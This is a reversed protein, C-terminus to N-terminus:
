VVLVQELDLVYPPLWAPINSLPLVSEDLEIGIADRMFARRREMRGWCQPYQEKIRSRLKDDALVVGDEANIYFFPGCSVPIIDMQLAMGSRLKVSSEPSFPSHVWEDLHLYHGPNVAFDFLNKDRKSEVAAFVDGSIAGVRTSTYWTTVVDFYNRVLADYFDRESAPLDEPGSAVCGARCTLAGLVGFATVYADGIRASNDSASSLGRKVKAGFSVMRHCSLPLGEADLFRELRKEEVGERINRILALVGQSTRASAYEFFAIQSPENVVRLGDEVDIFIDNANLVHEEGGTITRLLDVIYAPIEIPHRGAGVMAPSCNKWGACGVSCGSRIGFHEFIERLSRSEGRPQGPLSFEQFLEVSIGLAEDPLYGMCENGVLLLTSGDRALLLLAEEFRPDFGTLYMLNAFHERDGYVVLVDLGLVNLKATTLEIRDKYVSIPMAPTMSDNGFDPLSVHSLRSMKRDEWRGFM